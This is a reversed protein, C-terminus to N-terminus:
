CNIVKLLQRKHCGCLEARLHFISRLLQQIRQEMGLHRDPLWLCWEGHAIQCRRFGLQQVQVAQDDPLSSRLIQGPFRVHCQLEWHRGPHTEQVKRHVLSHVDIGFLFHSCQKVMANTRSGKTIWLGSWLGFDTNRSKDAESRWNSLISASKESWPSM